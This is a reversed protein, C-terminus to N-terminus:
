AAAVSTIFANQTTRIGNYHCQDLAIDLEIKIILKQMLNQIGKLVTVSFLCQSKLLLKREQTGSVAENDNLTSFHNGFSGSLTHLLSWHPWPFFFILVKM